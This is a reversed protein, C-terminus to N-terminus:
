PLAPERTALTGAAPGEAETSSEAALILRQLGPDNPGAATRCISRMFGVLIATRKNIRPGALQPEPSANISM